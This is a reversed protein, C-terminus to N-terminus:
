YEKVNFGSEEGTKFLIRIADDETPAAAEILENENLWDSLEKIAEKESRGSKILEKYRKELDEMLGENLREQKHWESDKHFDKFMIICEYSGGLLNIGTFEGQWWLLDNKINDWGATNPDGYREVLKRKIEATKDVTFYIWASEFKDNLFHYEIKEALIGEFDLDDNEKVYVLFSADRRVQRLGELNNIDTGWAIGGFGSPENQYAFIDQTFILVSLLIFSITLIRNIARMM